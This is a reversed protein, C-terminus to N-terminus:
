RYRWLEFKLMGFHPFKKERRVTRFVLRMNPHVMGAEDTYTVKVRAQWLASVRQYNEYSFLCTLTVVEGSEVHGYDQVTNGQILEVKEIRDDFSIEVSEPDRFSPIDNIWIM